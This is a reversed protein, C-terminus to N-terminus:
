GGKAGPMVLGTLACSYGYRMDCRLPLSLPLTAGLRRLGRVVHCLPLGMVNAPCGELRAVPAFETNQIAYAAAKDLPDGTKVYAEIESDDMVRLWVRSECLDTIHKGVAADMVSVGTLVLHREGRLRRLMAVADMGDRPKGLIDGKHVVITDAALVLGAGVDFAVSEAKLRSIRQPADAPVEGPLLREDVMPARVEFPIDLLRLLEQRRPSGSGLILRQTTDM